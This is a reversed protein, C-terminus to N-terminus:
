TQNRRRYESPTNAYWRRFTRSFNTPDQYGLRLAIIEVPEDTNRLYWCALQKHNADLLEKFSTGEEKLKRMLTRSSVCLHSAVHSLEPIRDTTLDVRKLLEAVRLAFSQKRGSLSQNKRECEFLSINRIETDSTICVQNLMELPFHFVLDDCGFRIQCPSFQRYVASWIKESFPIDVVIKNLNTAIVSQFGRVLTAFIAEFFFQSADGLHIRESIILKGEMENEVYRFTFADARLHAYQAIIKLAERLNECAAAAHGVAGHSASDGEQGFELGLWPCFLLRKAEKIMRGYFKIDIMSDAISIQELTLGAVELVKIADVDRALLQSYTRRVYSSHVYYIELKQHATM